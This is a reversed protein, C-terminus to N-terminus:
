EKEGSQPSFTARLSPHPTTLAAAITMLADDIRLLVDDNWLRVVRYGQQQLHQTRATDYKEQDLHQSGDLEVILHAQLCVFDPYFRDIRHQRRFKYGLLRRNRLHHWLKREADTQLRRLQRERAHSQPGRM